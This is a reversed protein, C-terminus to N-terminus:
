GKSIRKFMRKSKRFVAKGKVIDRIKAKRRRKSDYWHEPHSLFLINSYGKDIASYPNDYYAFGFGRTVTCDMIHCDIDKYLDADYAEFKVGFVDTGRVETIINNSIGLRINEDAGHSCISNIKHGIIHEFDKIENKLYEGMLSIDIQNKDIVGHERIYNAITEFHFGVEFRSYIMEEILLTDITTKRFYYTSTVGIKKEIEFMKRTSPELSDVDHRLVFYKRNRRNPLNYFQELSVIEYANKRAYQIYEAYRKLRNNFLLSNFVMHRNVKM